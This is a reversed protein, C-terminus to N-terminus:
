SVEYIEVLGSGSVMATSVGRPLSCYQNSATSQWITEIELGLDRIASSLSPNATTFEM